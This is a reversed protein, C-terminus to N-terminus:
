VAAAGAPAGEPSGARRACSLMAWGCAAVSDGSQGVVRFFLRFGEALSGAAVSEPPWGAPGPGAHANVFMLGVADNRSDGLAELFHALTGFARCTSALDNAALGAFPVLFPRCSGVLPEARLHRESHVWLGGSLEGWFDDGGGDGGFPCRDFEPPRRGKWGHGVRVSWGDM